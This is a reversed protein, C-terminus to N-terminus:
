FRGVKLYFKSQLRKALVLWCWRIINKTYHGPRFPLCGILQSSLLFNTSFTDVCQGFELKHITLYIVSIFLMIYNLSLQMSYTHMSFQVWAYYTISNHILHFQQIHKTLVHMYIIAHFYNNSVASIINVWSTSSM